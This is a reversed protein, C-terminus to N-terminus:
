LIAGQILNKVSPTDQMIHEVQELLDAQEFHGLKEMTKSLHIVFMYLIGQKAFMFRNFAMMALSASQFDDPPSDSFTKLLKEAEDLEKQWEQFNWGMYRYEDSM